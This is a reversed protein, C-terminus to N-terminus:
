MESIEFAIIERFALVSLDLTRFVLVTNVCEYFRLIRYSVFVTASTKVIPCLYSLPIFSLTIIVVATKSTQIIHKFGTM